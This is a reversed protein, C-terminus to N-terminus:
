PSIYGWGSGPGGNSKHIQLIKDAIEKTCVFNFFTNQRSLNIGSADSIGKSFATPNAKEFKKKSIEIADDSM